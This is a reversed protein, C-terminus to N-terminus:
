KGQSDKPGGTLVVRDGTKPADGAPTDEVVAGSVCERVDVIRVRGTWRRDRLVSLELGARMGQRRGAALVVMGLGPNADLVRTEAAPEARETGYPEEAPVDQADLEAVTSALAESLQRVRKRLDDGEKRLLENEEQLHWLVARAEQAELELMEGNPGDATGAAAGDGPGDGTGGPDKGPISASQVTNAATEAEAHVASAGKGPGGGGETELRASVGTPPDTLSCTQRPARGALWGGAAAAGLLGALGLGRLCRRLRETM